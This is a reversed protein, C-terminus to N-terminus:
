RRRGRLLLFFGCHARGAALGAQARRRRLAAVYARGIMQVPRVTRAPQRQVCACVFLLVLLATVCRALPLGALQAFVLKSLILHLHARASVLLELVTRLAHTCKKGQAPQM